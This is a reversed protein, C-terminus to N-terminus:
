EYHCNGVKAADGLGHTYLHREYTDKVRSEYPCAPCKFTEIYIPHKFKLDGHAQVFHDAYNIGATPIFCYPCMRAKSGRSETSAEQKEKKKPRTARTVTRRKKPKSTSGTWDEDDDDDDEADTSASSGLVTEL